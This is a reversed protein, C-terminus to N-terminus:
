ATPVLCVAPVGQVVDEETAGSLLDEPTLAALGMEGSWTTAAAYAGAWASALPSYGNGEEDQALVVLAEPPQTQLYALLDAVTMAM